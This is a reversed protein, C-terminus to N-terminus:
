TKQNIDFRRHIKRHKLIEKGHKKYLATWVKVKAIYTNWSSDIKAKLFLGTKLYYKVAKLKFEYSYKM